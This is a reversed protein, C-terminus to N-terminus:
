EIDYNISVTNSEDTRIEWSINSHSHVEGGSKYNLELSSIVFRTLWEFDFTSIVSGRTNFNIEAQTLVKGGAGYRINTRRFVPIRETSIDKVVGISKISFTTLNSSTPNVRLYVEDDTIFPTLTFLKSTNTDAYRVMDTTNMLVLECSEVNIISQTVPSYEDSFIIFKGVNFDTTKGILIDQSLANELQVTKDVLSGSKYGSVPDYRIAWELVDSDNRIVTLKVTSQSSVIQQSQQEITQNGYPIIILNFQGWSNASDSIEIIDGRRAYNGDTDTVQTYSQIIEPLQISLNTDTYDQTNIDYKFGSKLEISGDEPVQYYGTAHPRIYLEDDSTGDMYIDRLRQDGFVDYLETSDAEIKVGGANVTDGSGSVGLEGTNLIRLGM